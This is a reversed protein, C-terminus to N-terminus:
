ISTVMKSSLYILAGIPLVELTAVYIVIYVVARLSQMYNRMLRYTVMLIFLAAVAALLWRVADSNGIRMAILMGPYLLCVALTTIDNYQSYSPTFRRSIQFTYDVLATCVLKVLVVAVTLGCVGAFLGFGFPRDAYLSIYLALAVTGLRFLTIFIQGWFNIPSDKYTRDTQALLSSHAQSIIGPQMFEGLIACVLLALIIWGCWPASWPSM